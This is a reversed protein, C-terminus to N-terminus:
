ATRRRRSANTVGSPTMSVCGGTRGHMAGWKERVDDRVGDCPRLSVSSRCGAVDLALQRTLARAGGRKIRMQQSDFAEQVLRM